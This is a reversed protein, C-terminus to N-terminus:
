RVLGVITSKRSMQFETTKTSRKKIEALLTISSKHDVSLPATNNWQWIVLTKIDILILKATSLYDCCQWIYGICLTKPYMNDRTPYTRYNLVTKKIPYSFTTPPLRTDQRM